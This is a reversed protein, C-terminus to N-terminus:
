PLALRQLKIEKKAGLSPIASMKDCYVLSSEIRTSELPPLFGGDWSSLELGAGGGSGALTISM